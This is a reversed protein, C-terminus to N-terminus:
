PILWANGTFKRIYDIAWINPVNGGNTSYMNRVAFRTLTAAAPAGTCNVAKVEGNQSDIVLAYHTTGSAFYVGRIDHNGLALRSAAGSGLVGATVRASDSMLYNVTTDDRITTYVRNNNDLLAGAAGYFGVENFRDNVSTALCYSGAMRAVYTDGAALAITKYVDLQIGAPAQIYIWSGICSSFYTGAAPAGWPAINGSRTQVVGTVANIVTFGLSALDANGDDFELNFADPAAPPAIYPYSNALQLTDLANTVTAGDVTSFNLISTSNTPIASQLTNLAVAVNAGAVASDNSVQSAAVALRNADNLFNANGSTAANGGSITYVRTGV